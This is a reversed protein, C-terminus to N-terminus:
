RKRARERITKRRENAKGNRQRDFLCVAMMLQAFVCDNNEAARGVGIGRYVDDVLSGGGRRVRCDRLGALCLDVSRRPGGPWVPM